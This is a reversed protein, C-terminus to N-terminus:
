EALLLSIVTRERASLSAFIRGAALDARAKRLATIRAAAIGEAAAQAAALAVGAAQDRELQAEEEPTMEVLHGEPYDLDVVWKHPMM